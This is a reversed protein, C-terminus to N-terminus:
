EFPLSRRPRGVRRVSDTSPTSPSLTWCRATLRIFYTALIGARVSSSQPSIDQGGNWSLGFERALHSISWGHQHLVKIEMQIGESQM